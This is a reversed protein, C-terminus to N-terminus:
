NKINVNSGGGSMQSFSMSPTAYLNNLAVNKRLSNLLFYRRSYKQEDIMLKKLGGRVTTADEVPTMNSVRTPNDDPKM